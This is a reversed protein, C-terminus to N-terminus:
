MVRGNHPRYSTQTWMLHTNWLPKSTVRTWQVRMVWFTNPCFRPPVSCLSFITNQGTPKRDYMPAEVYMLEANGLEKSLVLKVHANHNHSRLDPVLALDELAVGGSVTHKHAMDCLKRSSIQETIYLGIFDKRLSQGAADRAATEDPTLTQVAYPGAKLLAQQRRM